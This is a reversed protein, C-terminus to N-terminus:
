GRSLNSYVSQNGIRFDIPQSETAEMEDTLVELSEGSIVEIPDDEIPEAENYMDEDQGSYQIYEDTLEYGIESMLKIYYIEDIYEYSQEDIQPGNILADLKKGIGLIKAEEINRYNSWLNWIYDIMDIISKKFNSNVYTKDIQPHISNQIANISNLYCRFFLCFEKFKNYEINETKNLIDDISLKDLDIMINEIGLINFLDPNKIKLIHLAGYIVDDSLNDITYYVLESSSLNPVEKMHVRRGPDTPSLTDILGTPKGGSQSNIRNQIEELSTIFLNQLPEVWKIPGLAETQSIVVELMTRTSLYSFSKLQEPDYSNLTNFIDDIKELLKMYRNIVYGERNGTKNLKLVNERWKLIKESTTPIKKAKIRISTKSKTKSRKSITKSPKIRTFSRQKKYFLEGLLKKMNNEVIDEIELGNNKFNIKLFPFERKTENCAPHAWDYMKPWMDKQFKHYERNFNDYIGSNDSKQKLNNIIKDSQQTYKNAPLGTLMAITSATLIHECQYGAPHDMASGGNDTIKFGCIYCKTSGVELQLRNSGIVQNIYESAKDCQRGPKIVEFCKRKKDGRVDQHGIQGASFYQTIHNKQWNLSIWDKPNDSNNM